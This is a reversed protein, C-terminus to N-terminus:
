DAIRVEVKDKPKPKTIMQQISELITISKKLFRFTLNNYM